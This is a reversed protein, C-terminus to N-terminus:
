HIRVSITLKKRKSCMACVRCDQPCVINGAPQGKYIVKFNNDVMFNSGNIILHKRITFDLDKRATYCYTIVNHEEALIRAVEEAKVVSNQSVFDGAENFRLKLLHKRKKEGILQNVFGQATCTSWFDLQRLRHSLANKYMKEAVMAYCKKNPEKLQCLGLQNSPCTTAPTMNFIATTKPLKKNGWTFLKGM